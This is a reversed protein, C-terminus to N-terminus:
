REERGDGFAGTEAGAANECRGNEGGEAIETTEFPVAVDKERAGERELLHEGGAAPPLVLGASDKATEFKDLGIWAEGLPGSKAPKGFMQEPVFVGIAGDEEIVGADSPEGFVDECFDDAAKEEVRRGVQAREGIDAGVGIEGGRGKLAAIIGHEQSGDSIAPREVLLEVGSRIRGSNLSNEM